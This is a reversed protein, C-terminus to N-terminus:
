MNSDDVSNLWAKAPEVVSQICGDKFPNNLNGLEVIELFSKSGGVKCIKLYDEWAKERNEMTKVWFQLACVQALTYDIYYFPTQFIHSQRFWYGGRNLFENDEYDRSPLYKKEIERWAKKREEPTAEPNEYVFHQFEDVTVGYPIFTLASALHTFKYKAEDEKFFLKMWPWTIFEMSMSHIEASESTPFGYEVVGLDRSEYAQFAHGAEHTLIDIDGSTGNFNAFIFPSKFKPIFECYGGGMKGKKSLLDMLEHEIMYNFYEHTEPSLEKYMQKGNEIIWNSDGKPTANGSLFELPEDYYKLETLGLRKTQRRKLEESVPVIFELVQRRYNAVMEANYDLRMMRIYGLEVYNKFGLKQAIKHRVKVLKDYINDIKSENEIYFSSSAEYARKRMNRDKSQIFPGLQSLNREEGEFMIKASAMLSDYESVLKNEEKLDELIEPKFAKLSNEAIRFLQKGWKEELGEKFKSNVLARYYDSVIGEYVPMNEDMFDKEKEYFEDKTNISNRISVLQAMSDVHSRLTNIDEMISNQEELSNAEEFNTILGRFESEVKEMDPREYKYDKFKTM